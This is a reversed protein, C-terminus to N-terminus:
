CSEDDLTGNVAIVHLPKDLRRATAVAQDFEVWDIMKFRYLRKAFSTNVEEASKGPAEELNRLIREDGGVLELRSLSGADAEWQPAARHVKDGIRFERTRRWGIDVNVPSPPVYLRFFAVKESSRDLVLRGAFQGPTFVGDKLAFEAHARFMLDAWRADCARLCGYGGGRSDGNNIHLKLRAGAHFQRLFKLLGEDNLEWLEGPAVPKTPLFTRFDSAGYTVREEAPRLNRLEDWQRHFSYESETIPGWFVGVELRSSDSVKLQDIAGNPRSADSVKVQDIAGDISPKANDTAQRSCAAICTLLLAATNPLFYRCLPNSKEM